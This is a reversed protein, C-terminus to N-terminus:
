RVVAFIDVAGDNKGFIARVTERGSLNKRRGKAEM